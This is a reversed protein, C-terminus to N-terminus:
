FRQPWAKSYARPLWCNSRRRLLWWSPRWRSDSQAGASSVNRGLRDGLSGGVLILSALALTYGNVVWQLGALEADLETGIRPLAVNAVTGDLFVLGSGTVATALLRRGAPDTLRLSTSVSAGYVPRAAATPAVAKM